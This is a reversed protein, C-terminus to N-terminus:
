TAEKSPETAALAAVGITRVNAPRWEQGCGGPVGDEDTCRHTRHPRTAFEGVDVHQKHCRPCWLLMPIPEQTKAEGERLGVAYAKAAARLVLRGLQEPELARALATPSTPAHLIDYMEEATLLAEPPVDHTM